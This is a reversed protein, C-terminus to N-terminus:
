EVVRTWQNQHLSYSKSSRVPKLLVVYVFRKEYRKDLFSIIICLVVGVFLDSADICALRGRWGVIPMSHKLM